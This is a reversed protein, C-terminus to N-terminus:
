EITRGMAVQARGRLGAAALLAIAPVVPARMRLDTWYVAHVLSMALIALGAAVRPWRWSGRLFLGRGLLVWLPLTWVATMGRLWDGYVAGSPAIGWFRGLRALTARAFDEPRARITAIARKRAERDAEMETMGATAKNVNEWWAAQNPGTWVAGSPGNVVEDYYVGNNALYLTYGGHTTGWVPEGLVWANRAAWPLITVGMAGLITVGRILRERWTGPGVGAGLTATLLAGAGASPRCLVGLGLMVGGVLAGWRGCGALGWLAGVLLLAALTETMVARSQSVLVPDFAVVGAALLTGLTGLGWRRATLATLGITGGGMVMHLLGVGVSAYEGCVAALPALMLPYLPPRYATPRGDIAFGKGESLSRALTLYQDPDEMGGGFIAGAVLVGRALVGGLLVGWVLRRLAPPWGENKVNM